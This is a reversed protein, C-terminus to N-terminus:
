YLVTDEGDVQIPEGNDDHDGDLVIKSASSASLPRNTNEPPKPEGITTEPQSSPRSVGLEELRREKEVGFQRTERDITEKAVRIQEDIIEEQVRTLQWPRYYLRPVSNTHLSRAMALMDSHRARMVKEDFWVQDIKRPRSLKSLKEANRKEEEAQLQELREKQRREAEGGKKRHRPPGPTTQSLTSLLGGFLRQGRKKEEQSVNRRASPPAAIPRKAESSLRSATESDGAKARSPVDNNDVQRQRDPLEQKLDSRRTSQAKADSEPVASNGNHVHGKELEAPEEAAKTGAPELKVRKSLGDEAPPSPSAKRKQTPAEETENM